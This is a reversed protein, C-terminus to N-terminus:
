CESGAEPRHRLQAELELLSRDQHVSQETDTHLVVDRSLVRSARESVTASRMRAFTLCRPRMEGSHRCSCEQMNMCGSNWSSPNRVSRGGHLIGDSHAGHTPLSQDGGLTDNGDQGPWNRRTAGTHVHGLPCARLATSQHEPSAPGSRTRDTCSTSQPDYILLWSWSFV